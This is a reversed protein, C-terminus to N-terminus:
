DKIGFYQKVANYNNWDLPKKADGIQAPLGAIGGPVIIYRFQQYNYGGQQASSIDYNSIIGITDVYFYPNAILTTTTSYTTDTYFLFPENIPLPLVFEGGPADSGANWYVKVFGTNLISDSLEPAPIQAFMTTDGRSAFTVNLWKSYIVNATGTAGTAGTAGQPGQPGTTGTDGKPGKSCGVVLLVIATLFTFPLALIKQKM